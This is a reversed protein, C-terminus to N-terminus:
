CSSNNPPEMESPRTKYLQQKFAILRERLQNSYLDVGHKGAQDLPLDRRSLCSLLECLVACQAELNVFDDCLRIWQEDATMSDSPDLPYNPVM